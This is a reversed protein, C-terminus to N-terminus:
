ERGSSFKCETPRSRNPAYTKFVLTILEKLTHRGHDGKRRGLFVAYLAQLSKACYEAVDPYNSQQTTEAQWWARHTNENRHRLRMGCAAHQQRVICFPFYGILRNPFYNGSFTTIWLWSRNLKPFGPGTVVIRSKSNPVKPENSLQRSDTYGIYRM